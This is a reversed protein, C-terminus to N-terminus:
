WPNALRSILGAAPMEAVGPHDPPALAQAAHQVVSGRQRRLTHSKPRHQWAIGACACVGLALRERMPNNPILVLPRQM